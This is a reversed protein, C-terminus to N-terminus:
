VLDFKFTAGNFPMKFLYVKQGAQQGIFYNDLIYHYGFRAKLKLICDLSSSYRSSAKILNHISPFCMPAFKLLTQNLKEGKLLEMLGQRDENFLHRSIFTKSTFLTIVLFTATPMCCVENTVM